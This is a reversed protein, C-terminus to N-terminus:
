SLPEDPFWYSDARRWCAYQADCNGRPVHCCLFDCSDTQHFLGFFGDLSEDAEIAMFYSAYGAGTVAFAIYCLAPLHSPTLTELLPVDAFVSLGASTLLHGIPATRGLLVLVFATRGRWLYLFLENGDSRGTAPLGAAGNRQLPWLHCRRAHHPHRQSLDVFTFPISSPFSVWPVSSLPHYSMATLPRTSFFIPGCPWLFLTAALLVGSVAAKGYVLALQYFIMSVFCWYLRSQCLFPLGKPLCPVTRKLAARALPLLM